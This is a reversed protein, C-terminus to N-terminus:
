VSSLTGKQTKQTNQPKIRRAIAGEYGCEVLVLRGRIAGDVMRHRVVATERGQSGM